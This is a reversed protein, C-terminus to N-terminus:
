EEEEEDTPGEIDSTLIQIQKNLEENNPNKRAVSELVALAESKRDLNSYSMGLLFLANAYDPRLSVSKELSSAAKEYMRADFLLAGLNYWALSDNPALESARQADSVAEASKGESAYLQSRLFFAAAYDSKLAFAKDLMALADVTNGKSLELQAIQLYVLPNSPNETLAREYAARANEYSGEVGVGALDKYLDALALWNRYDGNNISVASLGHQITAELTSRLRSVDADTDGGQAALEGLQMLGLEVAGRHARENSPYMALAHRLSTLASSTGGGQSFTYSSKNVLIDSFTARLLTLMSFVSLLLVLIVLSARTVDWYKKSDFAIGKAGSMGESAAVIGLMLFLLASLTLSPVFFIHFASLYLAAGFFFPALGAARTSSETRIWRYLALLLAALLFAWVLLGLAGVTIFTTPIFGVGANFDINWFETANVGLPKYLSWQTAFTNPGTGFVTGLVGQGSEKSIAFTGEWSPRVEVQLVQLRSPLADYIYSASLGGLIAVIGIICPAVARMSWTRQSRESLFRIYLGYSVLLVGSLFWVDQMNVILLMAFSVLALVWAATRWHISLSHVGHVVVGLFVLLGAVIGVEHWSGFINATSSYLVGLSVSPVLVHLVQVLMLVLGGVIIAQVALRSSKEVSSVAYVAVLFLTSLLAIATVTDHGGVGSVYSSALSGSFLASLTYAVPLALVPIVILSRPIHLSTDRYRAIAWVGIAGLSLLSLVLIKAQLIGVWPLPIFFCLGLAVLGVFLVALIHELNKLSSMALYYM